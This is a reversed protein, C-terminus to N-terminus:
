KKIFRQIVNTFEKEAVIDLLLSGLKDISKYTM